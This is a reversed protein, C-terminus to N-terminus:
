QAARPAGGTGRAARAKERAEDLKKIIPEVSPDAAVMATNTTERMEKMAAEMKERAAVVKPDKRATESAAQYKAKEDATLSELARDRFGGRRGEAQPTATPADAARASFSTTLSALSCVLVITKLNM